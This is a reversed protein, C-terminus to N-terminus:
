NPALFDVANLMQANAQVMGLVGETLSGPLEGPKFGALGRVVDPYSNVGMGRFLADGSFARLMNRTNLGHHSMWAAESIGFRSKALDDIVGLAKRGQILDDGFMRLGGVVKAGTGELRVLKGVHALKGFPLVGAVALATSKASGRDALFKSAELALVLLGTVLVVAMLVATIPGTLLLAFGLAVLGVIQLATILGEIAPMANDWFGDEVGNENVDELSDRAVAYADDWTEFPADYNRWYGEWEAVATDFAAQEASSDPREAEADGGAASEPLPNRDRQRGGM